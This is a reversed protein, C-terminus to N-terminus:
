QGPAKSSIPPAARHIEHLSAPDRMEVILRALGLVILGAGIWAAVRAPPHILM